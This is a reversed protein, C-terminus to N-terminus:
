IERGAKEVKGAKIQGKKKQKSFFTFKLSYGLIPNHCSCHIYKGLLEFIGGMEHAKKERVKIEYRKINSKRLFNVQIPM